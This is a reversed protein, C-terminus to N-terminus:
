YYKVRIKIQAGDKYVATVFAKTGPRWGEGNAPESLSTYDYTNRKNPTILKVVDNKQPLSHANIEDEGERWVVEVVAKSNYVESNPLLGTYIWGDLETNRDM